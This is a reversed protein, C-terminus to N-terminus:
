EGLTPDYGHRMLKEVVPRAAAAYKETQDVAGMADHYGLPYEKLGCYDLVEAVGRLNMSETFVYVLPM